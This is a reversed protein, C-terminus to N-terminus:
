KAAFEAFKTLGSGWGEAAGVADAMGQGGQPMRWFDKHVVAVRTRDAEAAFTVTVRSAKEVDNELQWSGDIM